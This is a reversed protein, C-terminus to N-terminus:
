QNLIKPLLNYNKNEFEYIEKISLKEGNLYWRDYYIFKGNIIYWNNSIRSNNYKKM